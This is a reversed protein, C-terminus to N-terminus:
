CGYAGRFRPAGALAHAGTVPLRPTEGPDHEAGDEQGERGVACPAADSVSLLSSLTLSGPSHACVYLKAGAPRPRETFTRRARRAGNPAATSASARTTAAMFTSIYSGVILPESM